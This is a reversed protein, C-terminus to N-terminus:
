DGQHELFSAEMEAFTKPRHQLFSAQDVYRFGILLGPDVSKVDACWQRLRAMKRPLELEEQGKTEVIVLRGEATRVIFDPVYSSVSGDTRVYDLRFGVALFNKAFSVVDECSDLFSAFELEFGSDGVIRNFVSKRPVVYQQEKAVFPRTDRLRISGRLAASGHDRVTLDNIAKTMTDLLLKSVGPEALNRLTNPDDLDAARDFLAERVFQKVNGYLVDYGSVLRQSRMLANSFYAVVSTPDGVGASDLRTVHTVEGSVVDKFVIERLEEESFERYPAKENGLGLPDLDELRKYERFTRPSLLPIEIDLADLDKKGNERDVEVVVPTKPVTGEGMEKRELVVGEAQISAVFEMFAKTGIVSVQEPVEGWYMRRLGRGLTQEPLINSQSSYARLGVITTVNRVDWGEKLMMVSVIAQYPSLPDDVENAAKRLKELEEKAKGSSAESIEGNKKTHIVLTRGAL